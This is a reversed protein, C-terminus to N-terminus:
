GLAQMGAPADQAALDLRHADWKASGREEWGPPQLAGGLARDRNRPTAVEGGRTRHRRGQSALKRDALQGHEPNDAVLNALVPLAIPAYVLKRGPSPHTAPHNLVRDPFCGPKPEQRDLLPTAFATAIQRVDDPNDRLLPRAPQGPSPPRAAWRDLRRYPAFLHAGRIAPIFFVRRARWFRDNSGSPLLRTRCHLMAFSLGRASVGM